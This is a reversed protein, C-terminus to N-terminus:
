YKKRRSKCFTFDWFGPYKNFGYYRYDFFYWRNAKYFSVREKLDKIAHQKRDGDVFIRFFSMSNLDASFRQHKKVSNKVDVHPHSHKHKPDSSFVSFRPRVVVPFDECWNGKAGHHMVQFCTVADVRKKGFYSLFEQLRADTNLYGDGTYQVGAQEGFEVAKFTIKDNVAQSACISKVNGCITGAYLFLSIQNRPKSGYGFECDYEAILQKLLVGREDDRTEGLLNKRARNVSQLFDASPVQSLTADNYPIFEWLNDLWLRGGPRLARVQMGEYDVVEQQLERDPIDAAEEWYEVNLEGSGVGDRPPVADTDFNFEPPRERSSSVLLIERPRYPMSAITAVPDLALRRAAHSQYRTQGAQAAIREWLPLYPIMLRQVDFKKLLTELGNVHDDDFHSITLLDLRPRNENFYWCRHLHNIASHLHYRQSVTGCDYVWRFSEPKCFEGVTGVSFLGQGVPAFGFESILM